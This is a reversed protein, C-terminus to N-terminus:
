KFYAYYDWAADPGRYLGQYALGTPADCTLGKGEVYLAPTAPLKARRALVDVIYAIQGGNNPDIRQARYMRMIMQPPLRPAFVYLAAIWVLTVLVGTWSWLLWASFATVLGLGGVLLVSHLQNRTKHARRRADDLLPTM